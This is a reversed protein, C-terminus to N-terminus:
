QPLSPGSNGAKEEPSAALNDYEEDGVDGLHGKLTGPVAKWDTHRTGQDVRIGADGTETNHYVTYRASRTGFSLTQLPGEEAYRFAEQRPTERLLDQAEPYAFETKFSKGNPTLLAYALRTGSPSFIFARANRDAIDFSFIAENIGDDLAYEVTKKEVMKRGNWTSETNVIVGAPTYEEELVHIPRPKGDFIDFTSFQHWCCGSKTMTNLQRRAADVGFMGCYNQALLSFDESYTFHTPDRPDGLYIQFSPGHYCSNQGDMIALDKVGDFNMDEFMIMSQEGYPLQRVNALAKGEHLDLTLEESEVRILQKNDSKRYITIVGPSFVDEPQDRRIKGYLDPSLDIRYIDALADMAPLYLLAACVFARLHLLPSFPLM